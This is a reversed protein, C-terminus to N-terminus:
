FKERLQHKMLTKEQESLGHLNAKECLSTLKKNDAAFKSCTDCLILHLRLKLRENFSAEKYQTKNCIVSAKECSIM